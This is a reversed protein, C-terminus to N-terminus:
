HVWHFSHFLQRFLKGSELAVVLEQLKNGVRFAHVLARSRVSYVDTLRELNRRSRRKKSGGGSQTVSWNMVSSDKVLALRM